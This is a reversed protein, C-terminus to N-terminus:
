CSRFARASGLRLCPYTPVDIVFVDSIRRATRLGTAAPVVAAMLEDTRLGGKMLADVDGARLSSRKKHRRM